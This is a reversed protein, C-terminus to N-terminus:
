RVYGNTATRQARNGRKTNCSAHALRLNSIVTTGGHSLPKLHDATSLQGLRIPQHCLQCIGRDRFWLAAKLQKSIHQRSM